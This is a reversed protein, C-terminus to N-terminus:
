ESGTSEECEDWQCITNTNDSKWSMTGANGFVFMIKPTLQGFSQGMLIYYPELRAETRGSWLSSGLMLCLGLFGALRTQLARRRAHKETSTAM